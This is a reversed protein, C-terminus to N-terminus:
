DNVVTSEIFTLAAPSLVNGVTAATAQCVKKLRHALFMKVVIHSPQNGLEPMKVHGEFLRGNATDLSRESAITVGVANLQMRMLEIPLDPQTALMAMHKGSLSFCAESMYDNPLILEAMDNTFKGAAPRKLTPKAPFDVSISYRQGSVVYKEGMQKVRFFPEDSSCGALATAMVVSALTVACWRHLTRWNRGFNM